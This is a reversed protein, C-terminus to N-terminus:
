EAEMVHAKPFQRIMLDNPIVDRGSMQKMFFAV